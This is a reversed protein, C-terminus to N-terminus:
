NRSGALNQQRALQQVFSQALGEQSEATLRQRVQERAMAIALDASYAKLEQRALKSLSGIEAEAQAQINAILRATDRGIREGESAMEAKANQRLAEMEKDLTAVRQEIAAVRAESEERLKRAETLGSSIEENRKAFFPGANKKGLWYLVGALLAFNAWKWAISPESHSEGKHAEEAAIAPLLTLAAVLLLRIM